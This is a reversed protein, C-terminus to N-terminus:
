GIEGSGAYNSTSVAGLEFNGYTPSEYSNAVRVFAWAHVMLGNWEAPTSVAIATSTLVNSLTDSSMRMQGLSPCYVVLMVDLNEAVTSDYPNGSVKVSVENPTTTNIRGYIPNSINGSALKVNSYDIVPSEATGSVAAYNEHFALNRPSRLTGKASKAFGLNIVPAMTRQFVSLLAFRARMTLQRVTRPNAVNAQHGRYVQIGRFKYGVVSGVKNIQSGNVGGFTNKSM